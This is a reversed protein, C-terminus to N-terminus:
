KNQVTCNSHYRLYGKIGAEDIRIVNPGSALRNVADTPNKYVFKDQNALSMQYYTSLKTDGDRIRELFFADSGSNLM